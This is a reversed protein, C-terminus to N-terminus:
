TVNPYLRREGDASEVRGGIRFRGAALVGQLVEDSDFLFLGFGNWHEILGGIAM